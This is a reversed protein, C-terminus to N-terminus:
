FGSKRCGYITCWMSKTGKTLGFCFNGSSSSGGCTEDNYDGPGGCSAPQLNGISNPDCWFFNAYDWGTRTFEPWTSDPVASINCINNLAVPVTLSAGAGSTLCMFAPAALSKFSSFASNDQAKEKSSTLSVLVVSVLIGIIIVIILIEILTFGKKNKNKKNM